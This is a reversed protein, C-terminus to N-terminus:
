AGKLPRYPSFGGAAPLGGSVNFGGSVSFGCPVAFGCGSSWGRGEDKAAFFSPFYHGLALFRVVVQRVAPANKGPIEGEIVLPDAHHIQKETSVAKKEPRGKNAMSM